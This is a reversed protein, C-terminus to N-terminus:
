LKSHRYDNIPGLLFLKHILDYKKQSQSINFYIIKNVSLKTEAEDIYKIRIQTHQLFQGTM